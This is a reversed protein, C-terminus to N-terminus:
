LTKTLKDLKPNFLKKRQVFDRIGYPLYFLYFHIIGVLILIVLYNGDPFLQALNDGEPPYRLYMYNADLILNVAGILGIVAFSVIIAINLSRFTPRLDSTIILFLIGLITLSHGFFYEIYYYSSYSDTISPTLISHIAGITWFYAVPYARRSKTLLVYAVLFVNLGCLHLPLITHYDWRGDFAFYIHRIAEHGLLGIVLLWRIINKWKEAAFKGVYVLVAVQIVVITALTWLHQSGFTDFM